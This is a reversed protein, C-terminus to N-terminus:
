MFSLQDVYVQQETRKTRRKRNKDTTNLDVHVDCLAGFKRPTTRWFQRPSM